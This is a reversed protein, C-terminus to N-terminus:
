FNDKLKEYAQSNMVSHTVPTVTVYGDYVYYVDTGNDEETPPIPEGILRYVNESPSIYGDTYRVSGVPCPKVGKIESANLNPLNVNLTYDKSSLEILKDLIKDIYKATEEVKFDKHASNSFAISPVGLFNAEFCANVTGSYFIDNGLNPGLNIGCIFLDIDKKFHSIGFKACDGPTGSLSYGEIGKLDVKEFTFDRHFTLSRSFGSRNGNPAIITLNHRKILVNALAILGESFIGDDNSLLINM